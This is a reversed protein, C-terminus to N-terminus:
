DTLYSWQRRWGCSPSSREKVERVSYPEPHSHLSALSKALCAIPFAVGALHVSSHENHFSVAPSIACSRAGSEEFQPVLLHRCLSVM